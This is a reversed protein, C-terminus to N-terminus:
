LLVSEPHIKRGTESMCCCQYFYLWSPCMNLVWGRGWHVVGRVAGQHRQGHRGHRFGTCLWVELFLDRKGLQGNNDM